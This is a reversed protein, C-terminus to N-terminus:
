LKTIMFKEKTRKSKRYSRLEKNLKKVNRRNLEIQKKGMNQEFILSDNANYFRVLADADGDVHDQVIWYDRLARKKPKAESSQSVLILAVTLGLPFFLRKMM